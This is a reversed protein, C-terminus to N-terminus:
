THVHVHGDEYVTFKPAITNQAEHKTLQGQWAMAAFVGRPGYFNKMGHALDELLVRESQYRQEFASNGVPEGERTFHAVTWWQKREPKKPKKTPM